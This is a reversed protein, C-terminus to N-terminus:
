WRDDASLSDKYAPMVSGKRRYPEVAGESVRWFWYTDTMEAVMAADRFSTPKLALSTAAAGDGGGRPGHCVVCQVEYIGRGRAFQRTRGSARLRQSIRTSPHFPRTCTLLKRRSMGTNTM